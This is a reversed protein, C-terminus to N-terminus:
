GDDNEESGSVCRHLQAQLRWIERASSVIKDMIQVADQPTIEMVGYLGIKVISNDNTQRAELSFKLIQANGQIPTLAGRIAFTQFIIFDEFDDDRVNSERRFERCTDEFREIGNLIIQMMRHAMELSWQSPHALTTPTHTHQKLAELYGELIQSCAKIVALPSAMESFFSDIAQRYCSDDVNEDTM